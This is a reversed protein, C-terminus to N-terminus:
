EPGPGTWDVVIGDAMFRGAQNSLRATAPIMVVVVATEAPLHITGPDQRDRALFRRSVLDYIHVTGSAAASAPPLRVERGEPYPNWLLHTPFAPPHYWDTAVCDWALIGPVDTSSVIGGLFGVSNGMYLAINYPTDAFWSRREALYAERGVAAHGTGTWGCRVPDGTAYPGSSLGAAPPASLLGEYFFLNDPDHRQKWVAHDQQDAPLDVGQLLRCSTAAHLALRGIAAATTPEYRVVPVLWAPNQLSGMTFAYFGEGAHAADLGDCTLGSLRTGSTVCWPHRSAEGDGLWARVVADLDIRPEDPGALVNLRAATLPGMMHTTEYRGPHDAYWRMVGRAAALMEPNHTRAHGALLVWAVTPAHGLRNMPEPRGDRAHLTFNWGLSDFDPADPVGAGRAIEQFATFTTAAASALAADHPHQDALILGLVAPWYGYIDASVVPGREGARHRFLGVEPDYWAQTLALYHTGHISQPDLGVLQAGAVAALCCFAETDHHLGLYSKMRFQNAEVQVAPFGAGSLSPDFVKQYYDRAVSRWDRVLLPEPLAPMREIVSPGFAPMMEAVEIRDARAPVQQLLVALAIAAM